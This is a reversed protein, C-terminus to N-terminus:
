EPPLPALARVEFLSDPADPTLRAEYGQKLIWSSLEIWGGENVQYEMEKDGRHERLPFGAATWRDRLNQFRGGVLQRLASLSAIGIWAGGTRHPVAVSGPALGRARARRVIEAVLLDRNRQFARRVADRLRATSADVLSCIAAEREGRPSDDRPSQSM